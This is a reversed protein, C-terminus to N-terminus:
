SFAKAVLQGSIYLSLFTGDFSLVVCYWTDTKLFQTDQWHKYPISTSNPGASGMFSFKTTDGTVLCSSDYMNDSIRFDWSGATGYVGRQVLMSSQCENT